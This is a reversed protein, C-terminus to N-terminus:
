RCSPLPWPAPALRRGAPANNWAPRYGGGNLAKILEERSRVPNWFTTVVRGLEDLTHADSGGCENLVYCGRWNEVQRNEFDRNRGNIGEITRCLGSRVVDEATPRAARFPHAAIAAGGWRDVTELLEGAEMRPPLAEFPGFLLFDGQPTSYEMGIIVCLGDPQVGERLGHRIDMTDHDTICVGDLGRARAHELIEGIGLSSCPSLTTHVHLDFRM